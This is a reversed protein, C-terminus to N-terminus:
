CQLKCKLELLSLQDRLSLLRQKIRESLPLLTRRRKIAKLKEWPDELDRVPEDIALFQHLAPLVSFISGGEQAAATLRFGETCPVGILKRRAEGSAQTVRLTLPSCKHCQTFRDLCLRRHGITARVECRRVKEALGEPMVCVEAKRLLGFPHFSPQLFLLVLCQRLELGETRRDFQVEVRGIPQRDRQAVKRRRLREGENCGPRVPVRRLRM